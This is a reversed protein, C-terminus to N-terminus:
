AGHGQPAPCAPAKASARGTTHVNPATPMGAPLPCPEEGRRQGELDRGGSTQRHFHSKSEAGQVQPSAQEGCCPTRCLGAEPSLAARLSPPLCKTQNHFRRKRTPLTTTSQLRWFLQMPQPVPSVRARKVQFTVPFWLPQQETGIRHRPASTRTRETAKTQRAKLAAEVERAGAASGATEAAREGLSRVLFALSEGEQRSSLLNEAVSMRLARELTHLPPSPTQTLCYKVLNSVWPKVCPTPAAGTPVALRFSPPRLACPGCPGPRIPGEGPRHSCPANRTQTWTRM